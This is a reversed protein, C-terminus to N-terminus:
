IINELDVRASLCVVFGRDLEADLYKIRFFYSWGLQPDLPIWYPDMNRDM